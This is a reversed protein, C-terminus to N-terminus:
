WESKGSHLDSRIKKKEIKIVEIMETLNPSPSDGKGSPQDHM